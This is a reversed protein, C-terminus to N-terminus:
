HRPHKTKEASELTERHTSEVVIGARKAIVSETLIKGDTANIGFSQTVVLSNEPESYVRNVQWLMGMAAVLQLRLHLSYRERMTAPFSQSRIIDAAITSDIWERGLDFAPPPSGYWLERAFSLNGNFFLRTHIYEDPRTQSLFIDWAGTGVHLRGDLDAGGAITVLFARTPLGQDRTNHSIEAIAERASLDPRLLRLSATAPLRDNRKDSSM